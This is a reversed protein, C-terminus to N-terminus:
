YSAPFQEWFGQLAQRFKGVEEYSDFLPPGEYHMDLPSPKALHSGYLSPAAWESFTNVHDFPDHKSKFETWRAYWEQDFPGELLARAERGEASLDIM